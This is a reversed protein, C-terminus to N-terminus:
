FRSLNGQFSGRDFSTSFGKNIGARFCRKKRETICIFLGIYVIYIHIYIYIYIYIYINYIYIMKDRRIVYNVYNM